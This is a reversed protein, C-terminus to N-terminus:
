QKDGPSAANKTSKVKLQQKVTRVLEEQDVPKAIYADAGAKAGSNIRV